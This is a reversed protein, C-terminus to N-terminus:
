GKELVKILAAHDLKGHGEAILRDYLELCLRTAPLEQDLERALELAQSLDKQQVTCHAGPEFDNEIMRKGHLELVRSDAFGGMVAERVRAPDVGARRALTLGEAVAGITLGVIIQNAAKAVQGAGVPGVHTLRSGLVDLVPRARDLAAEAGGAMISLTGDRAGVMGGSVPADVYDGGAARVREAFRRTATAATTGMDIVLADPRLGELVGGQGLLVSEAARTDTVMLIVTGSEGAVAAPTERGIAGEAVLADVTAPDLDNVLLRAGARLLNRTMGQGMLGLGIFGVARGTLANM